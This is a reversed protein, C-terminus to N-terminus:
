FSQANPDDLFDAHPRPDYDERTGEDTYGSSTPAPNWYGDEVYDRDAYLSPESTLGSELFTADYDANLAAQLDDLADSNSAISDIEEMEQSDKVKSATITVYFSEFAPSEDVDTVEFHLDNGNRDKFFPVRIVDGVIIYRSLGDAEFSNIHIRFLQSDGLPSIIGFASLDYPQEDRQVVEANIQVGNSDYRRDRNEMWINDQIDTISSGAGLTADGLYRYVIIPHHTLSTREFSLKRQMARDKDGYVGIKGIKYASM